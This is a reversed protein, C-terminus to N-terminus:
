SQMGTLALALLSAPLLGSVVASSTALYLGCMHMVAPAREAARCPVAHGAQTVSGLGQWCSNRVCGVCDCLRSAASCPRLAAQIETVQQIVGEATGYPDEVAAQLRRSVGQIGGQAQSAAVSIGGELQGAAEDVNAATGAACAVDNSYM